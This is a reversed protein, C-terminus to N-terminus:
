PPTLVPALDEARAWGAQFGIKVGNENRTLQGGPGTIPTMQVDLFDGANLEDKMPIRLRAFCLKDGCNWRWQQWLVSNKQWDDPNVYGEIGIPAVVEMWDGIRARVDSPVNSKLPLFKVPEKADPSGNTFTMLYLWTTQPAAWAKTTWAQPQHGPRWMAIAQNTALCLYLVEKKKRPAAEPKVKGSDDTEPWYTQRWIEASLLQNGPVGERRVDIESMTNTLANVSLLKAAIRKGKVTKTALLLASDPLCGIWQPDYQALDVSFIRGFRQSVPDYWGMGCVHVGSAPDTLQLGFWIRGNGSAAPGMTQQLTSPDVDGAGASRLYHIADSTPPPMPYAESSIGSMLYLTDKECHYTQGNLMVYNSPPPPSPLLGHLELSDRPVTVLANTQWLYYAAWQPGAFFCYTSDFSIEPFALLWPSAARASPMILCLATLVAAQRLHVMMNSTKV